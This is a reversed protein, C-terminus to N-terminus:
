VRVRRADVANLPRIDWQMVAEPIQGAPAPGARERPGIPPMAISPKSMLRRRSGPLVSTISNVGSFGPVYVKRQETYQPVPCPPMCPSSSTSFGSGQPPLRVRRWLEDPRLARPVVGLAAWPGELDERESPKGDECATTYDEGHSLVSKRSPRSQSVRRDSLVLM